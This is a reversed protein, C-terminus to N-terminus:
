ASARSCVRWVLGGCSSLTVAKLYSRQHGVVYVGYLVVVVLCPGLRWTGIRQRGVVNVGSSFELYRLRRGIVYVLELVVLFVFFM